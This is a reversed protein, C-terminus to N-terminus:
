WAPTGSLNGPKNAHPLRGNLRMQQSASDVYTRRFVYAPTKWHLTERSRVLPM